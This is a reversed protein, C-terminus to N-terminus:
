VGSAASLSMGPLPILVLGNLAGPVERKQDPDSTLVAARRDGVDIIPV